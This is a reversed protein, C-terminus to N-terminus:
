AEESYHGNPIPLVTTSKIETLAMSTKVRAVGPIPTIREMLFRQLDAKNVIVVKLLYDIDGILQHCELVEPMNAVQSRFAQVKEPSHTQLSVQIFCLMDYGVAERSILAAYGCIVGTEELRRIRAHIAPPSLNVRRALEANSVRSDNQLANVIEIDVADLEVSYYEM